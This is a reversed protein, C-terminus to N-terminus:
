KLWRGRWGRLTTRHVGVADAGGGGVAGGVGHDDAVRLAVHAVEEVGVVPEAAAVLGRDVEPARELALVDGLAGDLEGAEGDGGGALVGGVAGGVPARRGRGRLRRGVGRRAGPRHRRGQGRRHEEGRHRAERRARRLGLGVGRHGAEAEGAEGPDALVRARAGGAHRELALSGGPAAVVGVDGAAAAARHLVAVEEDAPGWVGEHAGRGRAGM